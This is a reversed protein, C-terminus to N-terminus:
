YIGYKNKLNNFESVVYPEYPKVLIKILTKMEEKTSWLEGQLTIFNSNMEVHENILNELLRPNDTTGKLKAVVMETETITQLDEQSLAGLLKDLLRIKDMTINTPYMM